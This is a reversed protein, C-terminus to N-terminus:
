SATILYAPAWWYDFIREPERVTFGAAELEAVWRSVPQETHLPTGQDLANLFVPVLFGQAVLDRDEDYERVGREYRDVLHRFWAPEVGSGIEPVDFEVMAIRETRERLRALVRVRDERPVVLMSFTEQVLDWPGVDERALFDQVTSVHARHAVGRDRLAATTVALREAAPEVLDVEAVEPTLAPLLGHGEGTGIDLLRLGHHGAYCSRLARHEARYLGVNGGGTAFATFAETSRYVDADDDRQLYRATQAYLERGPAREAAAGAFERAGARDGGADALVALYFLELATDARLETLPTGARHAQWIAEVDM